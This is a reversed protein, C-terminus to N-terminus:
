AGAQPAGGVRERAVALIRESLGADDVARALTLAGVMASVAFLAEDEAARRGAMLGALRRWMGVLAETFAGRVGAGGRHAEGGLAALACGGGFNDRHEASLYRAVYAELTRAGGLRAAAESVAHRLAEAALGEKSGFQSYVGGHSLGAAAAVADVGVGGLGQERFLRAAAGVLRARNEAAKERSVRM